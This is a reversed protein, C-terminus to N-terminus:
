SITIRSLPLYFGDLYCWVWADGQVASRLLPHGTQEHHARAHRLPSSDCCAVNACSLCMRLHVWSSGAELCAACVGADPPLEVTAVYELHTCRTWSERRM